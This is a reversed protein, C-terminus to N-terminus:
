VRAPGILGWRNTFPDRFVAVQGHPEQRPAEGFTVGAARYRARDRAFDDTHLFLFV